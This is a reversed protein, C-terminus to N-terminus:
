QNNEIVANTKERGIALKEGNYYYTNGEKTFVGADEAIEFVNVNNEYGTDFFYRVTCSKSPEAVKNKKTTFKLVQGIQKQGKALASLRKIELRISTYFKLALGGSVIYPDCQGGMINQRLQNIFVVATDHKAVLGIIKRLGQSVLRAQAGMTP